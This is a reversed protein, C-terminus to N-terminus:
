VVALKACAAPDEIVEEVHMKVAKALPIKMDFVDLTITPPHPTQNEFLYYAPSREGGIIVSKGRTGGESKTAGLQVEVIRGSYTEVPPLFDVEIINSPKISKSVAVPPGAAKPQASVASPQLWIELDGVDLDVDELEVEQLKALIEFLEPSFKLSAKKEEKEREGM